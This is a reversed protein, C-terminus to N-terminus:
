SSIRIIREKLRYNTINLAAINVEGKPYQLEICKAILANDIVTPDREKCPNLM